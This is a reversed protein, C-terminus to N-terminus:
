VYPLIKIKVTLLISEVIVKANFLFNTIRDSLSNNSKLYAKQTRRSVHLRLATSFVQM